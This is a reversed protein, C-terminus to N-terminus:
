GKKNKGLPRQHAEIKETNFAKEIGWKQIREDLSSRNIGIIEAIQRLSLHENNFLYKKITKRPRRNRAQESASAWRCNESSYGKSNDIRELTYNEPRSGMDQYFNEFSSIWSDCITIGRGGYDNYFKHSKKLCRDRMSIWSNYERTSTMGHTSNREKVISKIRETNMHTGILCGCSKKLNANAERTIITTEQGCDCIAKWTGIKKISHYKNSFELFEQIILKGIRKGILKRKSNELNTQTKKDM